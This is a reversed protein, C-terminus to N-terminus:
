LDGYEFCAVGNFVAFARDVAVLYFGADLALGARDHRAEAARSSERVTLVVDGIVEAAGHVLVDAAVLCQLEHAIDILDIDFVAACFCLEVGGGARREFLDACLVLEIEQVRGDTM